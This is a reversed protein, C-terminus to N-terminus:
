LNKDDCVCWEDDDNENKELTIEPEIVIIKEKRPSEEIREEKRNVVSTISMNSGTTDMRVEPPPSIKGKMPYSDFFDTDIDSEDIDFNCYKLYFYFCSTLCM